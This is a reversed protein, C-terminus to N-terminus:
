RCKELLLWAPSFSFFFWWHTISLKSWIKVSFITNNWFFRIHKYRKLVKHLHKIPFLIYYKYVIGKLMQILSQLAFKLSIYRTRKNQLMYQMYVVKARSKWWVNLLMSLTNSFCSETTVKTAGLSAHVSHM